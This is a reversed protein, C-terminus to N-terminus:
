LIADEPTKIEVTMQFNKLYGGGGERMPQPEFGIPNCDYAIGNLTYQKRFLQRLASGVRGGRRQLREPDSDEIWVQIVFPHTILRNRRDHYFSEGPLIVLMPFGGDNVDWHGIYALQSHIDELIIGTMKEDEFYGLKEAATCDRVELYSEDTLTNLEILLWTVADGVYPSATVGPIDTNIVAAVEAVTANNIDAFDGTNFTATRDTGYVSIILQDGDTLAYPGSKGILKAKGRDADIDDFYDPLGDVLTRELEEWLRDM